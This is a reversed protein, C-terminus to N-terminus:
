AGPALVSKALTPIKGQRYEEATERLARLLASWDELDTASIKEIMRRTLEPVMVHLMVPSYGSEDALRAWLLNNSDWSEGLLRSSYGMLTPLPKISLLERAYTRELAPHPVGFDESLREWSVEKPDRQSLKALEEGATGWTQTPFGRRYQMALHLTEAPALRSIAAEPDGRRLAEEVEGARQPLIRDSLITMVAHRLDQDKAAAGLLEEGCRQYLSVAHLETKSVGWWRPLVAGVLLSPVLDEWILSQVNEPVIFNQEVQALVYPLDALSGALHAGGAAAEGVGYLVPTQWSQYENNIKEGAPDHARVFLPNSLLMQGGPPAYYAYNLGVLTDRLFPVLQGRAAKLDGAAPPSKITPLLDMQLEFQIHPTTYLGNAWELREGSTFLPKPLEFERLEGALVLLTEAAAKGQAMQSLGHGLGFLNDLSILRQADLVARLNEALARRVQQGEPSTQGPGALLAIIQDQSHQPQGGASQLLGDFSSESADFLQAASSVSAFPTIVQQWSPNQNQRPIEGQRALIEWLGVLAQYIGLTDARVGTDPIGDIAAAVSLFRAISADNLSSFESFIIYQDGFRPYSDTLLRVADASLWQEPSRRRDIESLALYIRMPSDTMAERSLAFLGEVLDDPNKWDKARRAWETGLRSHAKRGVIGKWVDLNGPIHPQGNPGVWLRTVLLLLDPDTRFAGKAPGPSTKKGRLADYFRVLRRPETFYAQQGPSIRSLADFYAALWGDDKALLRAVFEGPSDPSAGVMGKWASEAAAGGPVAVQKSRICVYRGYYDLVAAVPTLKELGPAERLSNRTPEDMRALAWYLRALEPDHLLVEIADDSKTHSHRTWESPGFFIPVETSPYHYVFPKGGELTQELDPLPFGSDVTLFARKQEATELAVRPGCPGSLRYGLTALLRPAESCSTIHIAGDADAMARLERAQEVYRRLLILFETPRRGGEQWTYGQTVVNRALLPLVEQPLVKQSIGAMRLFSRRPGPITINPSNPRPDQQDPEPSHAAAGVSNGLWALAGVMCVILVYARSHRPKM